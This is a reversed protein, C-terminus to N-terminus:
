IINGGFLEEASRNQAPDARFARCSLFLIRKMRRNHFFYAFSWMVLDENYPDGTYGTKYSYLNCNNINIVEDIERWLTQKIDYYNSIIPSLKLDILGSLVKFDPILSFAESNTSSFDYDQFSVNMVSKLDFLTRCSIADAYTVGTDEVDSSDSCALKSFSQLHQNKAALPSSYSFYPLREPPSLPQLANEGSRKKRKWQKKESTIMKCSYPELRFVAIICLLSDLEANELLKM